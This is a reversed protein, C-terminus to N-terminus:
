LPSMEVTLDSIRAKIPIKSNWIRVMICDADGLIIMESDINVVAGDAEYDFSQGELPIPDCGRQLVTRIGAGDQTDTFDMKATLRLKFPGRYRPELMQMLTVRGDDPFTVAIYDATKEVKAKAQSIWNEYSQIILKESMRTATKVNSAFAADIKPELIDIFHTVGSVSLHSNDRYYITDQTAGICTGGDCFANFPNLNSVNINQAALKTFIANINRAVEFNHTTNSMTMCNRRQNANDKLGIRKLLNPKLLCTTMSDNLITQPSPGILVIKRNGARAIFTEVEQQIYLELAGYAEDPEPFSRVERDATLMENYLVWNQSLIIPSTPSKDALVWFRERDSSCSDKLSERAYIDTTFFPCAGEQIMLGHSKLSKLKQDFGHFYHHMHSDGIFLLRENLSDAAGMECLTSNCGLGGNLLQRRIHEDDSAYKQVDPSLRWSLGNGRWGYASVILAAFFITVIVVTKLAPYQRYSERKRSDRFIREIGYYLFIALGLSIFFMVAIDLASIPSAKGYLYYVVVPWHVLYLSYSVKGLGVSIPNSLIITGISQRGGLIIGATALTPILSSVGPFRTADSYAFFCVILAALGAGFCVTSFLKQREFFVLLPICLAGIGFEAIRFPTLYFATSPNHNLSWEAAIIAAMSLIFIVMWIFTKSIKGRTLSALLLMLAPWILYFQEEVSLSWSHLLPKNLAADSFYGADMWFFINSVSFAAAFASQSLHKLHEPTLFFLGVVWTAIITVLLAPVLRRIRRLYFRRFSFQEASIDRLLLSTILFGSITFFVDVGLYGGSLREFGVHYLIVALVALARLGDIDKRYTM